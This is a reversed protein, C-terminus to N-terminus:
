KDSVKAGGLIAVYPKEPNELLKSLCEIEKQILFGCGKDKVFKTIGDVSAHARHVAGFADDIYM